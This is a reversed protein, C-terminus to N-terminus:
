ITLSGRFEDSKRNDNSIFPAFFKSAWHSTNYFLVELIMGVSWWSETNVGLAGNPKITCKPIFYTMDQGIDTKFVMQAAGEVLPEQLVALKTSTLSSALFFRKLNAANIEDFSFPITLSETNAAIKDKKRKGCKSVFHDVYTVDPTPEATVINGLNRASARFAGGMGARTSDAAIQTANASTLLSAHAVSAAFYLDVGGITYSGTSITPM